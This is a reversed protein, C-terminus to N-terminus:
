IELDFYGPVDFLLPNMFCQDNQNYQMLESRIM